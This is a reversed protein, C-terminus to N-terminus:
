GTVFRCPELEAVETDVDDGSAAASYLGLPRRIRLTQWGLFKPGAFDKAPNDAVYVCEDGGVELIREMEEFAHPNPKGFGPGLSATLIAGDLRDSLHLVEVKAQQSALPGDSILGIKVRGVLSDLCSEADPQLQISPLHTRYVEVFEDIIEQARDLEGWVLDFHKMARNFIDGRHGAEFEEWAAAQFGEVGFVAQAYHGVAAFGSRVYDRELYLTDDLDFVV